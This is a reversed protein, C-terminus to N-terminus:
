LLLDLRSPSHEALFKGQETEVPSTHMAKTFKTVKVYVL